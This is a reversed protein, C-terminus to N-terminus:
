RILSLFILAFGAVPLMWVFGALIYKWGLVVLWYVVLMLVWFEIM